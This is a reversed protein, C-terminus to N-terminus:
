VTSTMLRGGGVIFETIKGYNVDCASIMDECRSNYYEVSIVCLDIM